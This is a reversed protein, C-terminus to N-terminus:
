PTACLQVCSFRSLLLLMISSVTPQGIQPQKPETALGRRVRQAGVSQVVGPGRDEMLELFKSLNIAVSDTITGSWRMRLQEM